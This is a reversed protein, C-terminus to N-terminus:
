KVIRVIINGLFNGPSDLMEECEDWFGGLFLCLATINWPIMALYLFVVRQIIRLPHALKEGRYTWTRLSLKSIKV